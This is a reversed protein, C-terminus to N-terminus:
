TLFYVACKTAQEPAGSNRSPCSPDSANKLSMLDHNEIQLWHSQYIYM